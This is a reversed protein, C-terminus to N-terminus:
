YVSIDPDDIRAPKLKEYIDELTETPLTSLNLNIGRFNVNINQEDGWGRRKGLKSLIFQAAYVNGNQAAEILCHEGLDVIKENASNRLKNLEPNKALKIYVNRRPIGFDKAIYSIIGYNREISDEWQENTIKIEQGKYLEIDKDIPKEIVPKVIKKRFSGLKGEKNSEL